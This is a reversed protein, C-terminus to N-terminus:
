ARRVYNMAAYREADDKFIWATVASCPVGFAEPQGPQEDVTVSVAV